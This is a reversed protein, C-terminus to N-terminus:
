DDITTDRVDNVVHQNGPVHWLSSRDSTPEPELNRNSHLLAVEIALLLIPFISPFECHVPVRQLQPVVDNPM